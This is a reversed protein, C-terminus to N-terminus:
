TSKRVAELAEPTDIDTLVADDDIAVECVLEAYEGLLHKAGTDGNVEAMRDFYDAGWLVPNGRKGRVTPVCIGRGEEPDFASILKDLHRVAILPMDGLCVLVGDTDEPLAKIGAALSTSLGDAFDPNETFSLELGGLAGRVQDQEHGTVAVVPAARSQLVTEAVRRVMPQGSIEALLKNAEGMRRSQGAALVLAAISPARVVGTDEPRGRPSPRSPIEKLLGGAGMGMVDDRGVPVGALVRELVWDFGNVKPSRACSPVGIVTTGELRGLMMLNGPDVPMGLHVVEGGAAELGAPIVDGRDVIASAGFVLIPGCGQDRVTKVADAVADVDHACRAVEGLTSGLAMLRADIAQISKDLIQPKTQPLETLVLGVDRPEFPVVRVPTEASCLEVARDLVSEHVAFPIVKVTALMQRPEVVQFGAATAITLSEDIRNIADIAAVDILALGHADAYINARGTFPEAIVTHAGGVAAALAAAAEDEAVDGPELRAAMVQTLGAESLQAIDDSSLLRGKKFVGGSHRVSHALVAGEAEGLPMMGFKM